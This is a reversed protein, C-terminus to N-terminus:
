YSTTCTFGTNKKKKKAHEHSLVKNMLSHYRNRQIVVIIINNPIHYFMGGGGKLLCFLGLLTYFEPSKIEPCVRGQLEPYIDICCPILHIDDHWAQAIVVNIKCTHKHYGFFNCMRNLLNM